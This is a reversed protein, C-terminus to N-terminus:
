DDNQKMKYMKINGNTKIKKPPKVTSLHLARADMKYHACYFHNNDITIIIVIIIPPIYLTVWFLLGSDMIM